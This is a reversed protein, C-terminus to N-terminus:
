FSAGASTECVHLLSWNPVQRKTSRFVHPECSVKQIWYVTTGGGVGVGVGVTTGGVGVGVGVPNGVGVGVMVQVSESVSPNPHASVHVSAVPVYLSVHLPLVGINSNQTLLKQVCVGCAVQGAPSVQTTWALPWGVHTTPGVGVPNGVGM